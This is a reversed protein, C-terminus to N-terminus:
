SCRFRLTPRFFLVSLSVVSIWTRTFHFAHLVHLRYFPPNAPGTQKAGYFRTFTANEKAPFKMASSM